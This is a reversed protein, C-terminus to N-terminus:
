RTSRQFSFCHLNSLKTAKKYM